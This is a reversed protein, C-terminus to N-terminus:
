HYMIYFPQTYLLPYGIFGSFIFANVPFSLLLLHTLYPTFPPPSETFSPYPLSPTQRSSAIPLQHIFKSLEPNVLLTFNQSYSQYLAGSNSPTKPVPALIDTSIRSSPLYRTPLSSYIQATNM